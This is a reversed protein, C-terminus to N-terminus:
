YKIKEQIIGDLKHNRNTSVLLFDTQNKRFRELSLFKFKRHLRVAAITDNHIPLQTFFDESYNSLIYDYIYSATNEPADITTCLKEIFIFNIANLKIKTNLSIQDYIFRQHDGTYFEIFGLTTKEKKLIILRYHPNNFKIKLSSLSISELINNSIKASRQNNIKIVDKLFRYHKRSRSIELFEM